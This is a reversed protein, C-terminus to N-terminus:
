WNYSRHVQSDFVDEDYQDLAMKCRRRIRKHYHWSTWPNNYSFNHVMDYLENSRLESDIEALRKEIDADMIKRKTIYARTYALKFFHRPVTCMYHKMFGYRYHWHNGYFDFWSRAKPSLKKYTRSDIRRVGPFQIERNERNERDWVKDAHRKDRGWCETGCQDLIELFVAADVRRSVDDRLVLHKYWGHRIPTELEVYGLRRRAEVLRRRELQLKRVYRERQTVKNFPRM